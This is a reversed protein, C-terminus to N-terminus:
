TSAILLLSISMPPELFSYWDAVEILSQIFDCCMSVLHGLLAKHVDVLYPSSSYTTTRDVEYGLERLLGVEHASV